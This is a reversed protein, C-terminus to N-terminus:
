LELAKKAAMSSLAMITWQPNVTIGSPFLSADAVFVNELGDIKFDSNVVRSNRFKSNDGIMRNGGQPHATTLHLNNKDLPYKALNEKFTNVNEKTLSLEIGPETPIIVKEAGANLGIETLTSLAFKINSKDTDTLNWNFARGDLLSAKLEVNGTPESGVLAGFNVMKKYNMMVKNSRDFYFPLSIAFAAPPNFYTEFVARDKSDIAGLTIQLGDFANLDEPFQFAAPFAFNCSLGQGVNKTLGSRMLFHSSAIVGGALIVAKKVKIKKLTGINSRVMVESARNGDQMLRVASMDSVVKVGRSESWPIYTELMSRKRMRRNGLNDLGEGIPNRHNSYLKVNSLKDAEELTSNYGNIGKEFKEKVNRNMVSEPIPKIEIEEAVLDYEDKISSLDLDFEDEWKQKIFEPMPLCVGNNIVTTGGLCEGQLVMMDFRKTQQLGGEKYLKRVMEMENDNFDEIPSYRPGRELLLIRSPDGVECALRYAAVAGGAGSGIVIYDVEDPLKTDTFATVVRPSVLPSDPIKTKSFNAPDNQDVHLPSIKNFPPVVTNDSIIRDRADTPVYGVKARNELQNYHSITVLAHLATCLKYVSETLLPFSSKAREDPPRLFYKRLFYKRHEIDMSSYSPLLGYIFVLVNELLWFPFNLLGRKRGRIGAIHNDINQLVKSGDENDGGYLASHLALVNQANSPSMSSINFEVNYFTKRISLLMIVVFGDMGVNLMYYWDETTFGGSRTTIEIDSIMGGVLLWILSVIVSTMYGFLLPKYLHERLKERGAIMFALFAIVVYKTITNTLQADPFGYIAGWGSEGELSLRIYIIGFPIVAVITGFVYYFTKTLRNALSYFFPFEKQLSYNHSFKKYKFMIFALALVLVGDVVSSALLYERYLTDPSTYLYFFLGGITSMLHGILLAFSSHFRLEKNYAGIFCLVAMLVVKIYTNITLPPNAYSMKLFKQVEAPYPNIGLISVILLILYFLYILGLIRLFWFSFDTSPKQISESTWEKKFLSFYQDENWATKPEKYIAKAVYRSIWLCFPGFLFADGIWVVAIRLLPHLSGIISESGYAWLAAEGFYRFNSELYIDLPLAVIIMLLM